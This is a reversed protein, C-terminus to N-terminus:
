EKPLMASIGIMLAMLVVACAARLDFAGNQTIAKVSLSFTGFDIWTLFTALSLIIIGTLAWRRPTV